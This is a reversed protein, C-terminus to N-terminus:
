DLGPRQCLCVHQPRSLVMKFLRELLLRDQERQSKEQELFREVLREEQALRARQLEKHEEGRRQMEAVMDDVARKRKGRLRVTRQSLAGPPSGPDEYSSAGPQPEMAAGGEEAEGKFLLPSIAAPPPAPPEPPPPPPPEARGRPGAAAGPPSVPPPSVPGLAQELEAFCPCLAAGDAALRAKRYLQKLHKIRDRCQAGTRQIGVAALRRAIAEYHHINKTSRSFDHERSYARWLSVLVRTHEEPWSSARQAPM